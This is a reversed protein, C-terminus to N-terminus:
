PETPEDLQPGIAGIAQYYALEADLIQVVQDDALDLGADTVKGLVYATPEDDPVVVLASGIDDATRESAVGKAALYDCHFLLVSRVDDFSVQATLEDPLRDAVFEVAEEIDYVSRRPRRALSGSVMGVSVAAIVFTGVVALVVWLWM